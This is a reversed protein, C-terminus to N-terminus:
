FPLIFGMYIYTYKHHYGEWFCSGIFQRNNWFVTFNGSVNRWSLLFRFNFFLYGIKDCLFNNQHTFITFFSYSLKREEYIPSFLLKIAVREFGRQFCQDAVFNLFYKPLISNTFKQIMHCSEIHLWTIINPVLKCGKGNSSTM